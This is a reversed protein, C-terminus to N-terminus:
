KYFAKGEVRVDVYTLEGTLGREDLYKIMRSIDEATVASDRDVQVKFYPMVGEIDIYLERIKGEPLVVRILQYGLDALDSRLLEIYEATRAPVIKEEDNENVIEMMLVNQEDMNEQVKEEFFVEKLNGVLIYGLFGIAGLIIIALFGSFLTKKHNKKRVRERETEERLAKKSLDEEKNKRKM